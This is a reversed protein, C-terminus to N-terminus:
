FLFDYCTFYIDPNDKTSPWNNPKPQTPCVWPDVERASDRNQFNETHPDSKLSRQSSEVRVTTARQTFQFLDVGATSTKIM